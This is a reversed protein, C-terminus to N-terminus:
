MIGIGANHDNNLLLYVPPIAILLYCRTKLVYNILKNIYM